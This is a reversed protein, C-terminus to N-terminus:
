TRPLTSSPATTIRRPCRGRTATVESYLETLENAGTGRLLTHLAARGETNNIEGGSLLTGIGDALGAEEALQVLAALAESNLRHKSFDLDIGAATATFAEVRNPDADFLSPITVTDLDRALRELTAYAPLATLPTRATM